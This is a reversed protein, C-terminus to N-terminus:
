PAPRAADLGLIRGKPKTRDVIVPGTETTEAFGFNGLADRVDVRVHIKAPCKASILWSYQGTNEVPTPTIIQWRADPGDARISIMVPRSTPHADSAHWTIILRNGALRPPELSVVPGASDVDVTTLPAEGAVPPRDGQNAASKAVLKLGYRGEGGLDVAFPSTRDPDEGRSIWTKGGDSTVFLEVAAPGNPGADEVAYQLNFKPSAVLIPPAAPEAAPVPTPEAGANREAPAGSYPDYAGANEAPVPRARKPNLANAAPRASESSTFTGIPTPVTTDASEAPAPAQEDPLGGGPLAILVVQRNKAQDTVTGRVKLPEATGADWSEVGSKGPRRIPISVWETSNEVQYDFALSGLDLADDSADWEISAINGRRSRSEIQLDPKRTDITVKMNPEIDANDSPFLRGQKDVTRVAFWFVGDNRAKFNFFPQDATTSAVREYDVGGNSSSWLQFEKYRPVDGPPINFPIKFSRQNYFVVQPRSSAPPAAALAVSGLALALGLRWTIPRLGTRGQNM